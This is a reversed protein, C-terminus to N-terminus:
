EGSADDDDSRDAIISAWDTERDIGEVRYRHLRRQDEPTQGQLRRAEVGEACVVPECDVNQGLILFRKAPLKRRRAVVFEDVNLEVDPFGAYWHQVARGGIQFARGVRTIRATVMFDIQALNSRHVIASQRRKHQMSARDSSEVFMSSLRRERM